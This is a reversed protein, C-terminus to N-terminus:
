RAFCFNTRPSTGWVPCAKAQPGQALAKNLLARSMEKTFVDSLRVPKEGFLVRARLVEFTYGRGARSAVKSEGNFTETFANSLRNGNGSYGCLLQPMKFQKQGCGPLNLDARCSPIRRGLLMKNLDWIRHRKEHLFYQDMVPPLRGVPCLIQEVYVVRNLSKAIRKWLQPHEPLFGHPRKERGFCPTRNFSRWRSKKTFDVIGDPFSYPHSGFPERRWQLQNLGALNSKRCDQSSAKRSPGFAEPLGAVFDRALKRKERCGWPEIQEPANPKFGEGRRAVFGSSWRSKKAHVGKAM